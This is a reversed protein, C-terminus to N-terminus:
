PILGCCRCTDILGQILRVDMSLPERKMLVVDMTTTNALLYVATSLTNLNVTTIM